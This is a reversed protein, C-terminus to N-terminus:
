TPVNNIYICASLIAIHMYAMGAGSAVSEAKRIDLSIDKPCHSRQAISGYRGRKLKIASDKHGKFTQRGFLAASAVQLTM